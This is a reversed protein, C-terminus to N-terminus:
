NDDSLNYIFLTLEQKFQKDNEITYGNNTLLKHLKNYFTKVYLKHNINKNHITWMHKSPGVPLYLWEVCNYTNRKVVKTNYPNPTTSWNM